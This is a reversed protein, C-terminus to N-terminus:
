NISDQPMEETPSTYEGANVLNEKQNDMNNEVPSKKIATDLHTEPDQVDANQNIINNSM